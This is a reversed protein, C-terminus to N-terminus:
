IPKKNLLSKSTVVPVTQSTGIGSFMPLASLRADEWRVLIKWPRLTMTHGETVSTVRSQWTLM